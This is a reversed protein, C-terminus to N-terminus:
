CTLTIPETSASHVALNPQAPHTNIRTRVYMLDHTHRSLTQAFTHTRTMATDWPRTSLGCVSLALPFRWGQQGVKCKRHTHTLAHPHQPSPEPWTPTNAWPTSWAVKHLHTRVHMFKEWTVALEEATNQQLMTATQTQRVLVEILISQRTHTHTHTHTNSPWGTLCLPMYFHQHWSACLVSNDHHTHVYM